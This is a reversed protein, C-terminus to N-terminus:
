QMEWATIVHLQEWARRASDAAAGGWYTRGTIALESWHCGACSVSISGDRHKSLYPACPESHGYQCPCDKLITTAM